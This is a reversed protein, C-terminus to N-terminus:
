MRQSAPPVHGNLRPYVVMQGYIDWTHGVLFTILRARSAPGLFKLPAPAAQLLTQDSQRTLPATGYEFSDDLAKIAADKDAPMEAAIRHTTTKLASWDKLLEAQLSVNQTQPRSAGSAAVVGFALAVVTARLMPMDTEKQDLLPQQLIAALTGAHVTPHCTGFTV